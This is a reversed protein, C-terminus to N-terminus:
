TEPAHRLMVGPAYAKAQLLRVREFTVTDRM